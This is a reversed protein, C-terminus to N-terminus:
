TVFCGGMEINKFSVTTPSDDAVAFLCASTVRLHFEFMIRTSETPKRKFIYIFTKTEDETAEYVCMM